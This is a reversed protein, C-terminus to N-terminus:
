KRSILRRFLIIALMVVFISGSLSFTNSYGTSQALAGFLLPGVGSGVDLFNYFTANAAIRREPSVKKMASAEMVPFIIGISAGYLLAFICLMLLNTAHAAVICGILGIIAGPIILINMGKKDYLKGSFIRTSMEAVTTVIFYLFINTINMQKAYLVVYTDCAGMLLGLLLIFVSEFIVKPEVVNSLWHTGKTQDEALPEFHDAKIFHTLLMSLLVLMAALLFVWKFYTQSIAVAGLCPGLVYAVSIGLGFFGMGEGMRENPITSAVTSGYLTSSAGFGLGQVLRLIIIMSMGAFLYYGVMSCAFISMALLLLVKRGVRASVKSTLTRMFMSTIYFIAAVIGIQFDDVGNQKLYVPLVTLLLCGAFFLLFNAIMLFIYDKSWLKDPKSNVAGDDANKM